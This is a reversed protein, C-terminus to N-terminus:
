RSFDDCGGPFFVCAEDSMYLGDDTVFGDWFFGATEPGSCGM